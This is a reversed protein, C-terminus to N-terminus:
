VCALWHSPPGPEFSQTASAPVGLGFSRLHLEPGISLKQPGVSVKRPQAPSPSQGNWPSVQLTVRKRSQKSLPTLPSLSVAVPCASGGDFWWDFGDSAASKQM